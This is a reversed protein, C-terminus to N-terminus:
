NFFFTIKNLIKFNIDVQEWFYKTFFYLFQKLINNSGQKLYWERMLFAAGRYIFIYQICKCSISNVFISSKSCKRSFFGEVVFFLGKYIKNRSLYSFLKKMAHQKTQITNNLNALISDSYNIIIHSVNLITMKLNGLMTM